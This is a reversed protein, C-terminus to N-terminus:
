GEVVLYMCDEMGLESSASCRANDGERGARYSHFLSYKLSYPRDLSLPTRPKMPLPSPLSNRGRGPLAVVSSTLSQFHINLILELQRLPIHLARSKETQTEYKEPRHETSCKGEDSANVSDFSCMGVEGLACCSCGWVCIRRAPLTVIVAEEVRVCAGAMIKAAGM